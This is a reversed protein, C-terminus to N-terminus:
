LGDLLARLDAMDPARRRLEALGGVTGTVNAIVALECGEAVYPRLRDTIEDPNGIEPYLRFDLDPLAKKFEQGWWPGRDSTTRMLLAM